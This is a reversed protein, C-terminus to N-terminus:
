GEIAVLRKKHNLRLEYKNLFDRGLVSPLALVAHRERETRTPHRLVQITLLREVHSGSDAQFVLDIARMLFAEAMGGVGVAGQPQRTLKDYPIMLNQADHDLIATRTAGSDVLFTLPSRIGLSPCILVARVYPAEHAGWEGRIRM